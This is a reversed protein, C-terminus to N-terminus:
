CAALEQIKPRTPRGSQRILSLLAQAFAPAVVGTEFRELVDRRAAAAISQRLPADEILREIAASWSAEDDGVLLGTRGDVIMQSYPPTDSYVGAAGAISYELYKNPCKSMSTRSSDLPAVLIDPALTGVAAAYDDYGVYPLVVAEAGFLQRQRRSIVVFLMAKVPPGRRRTSAALAAFAGDNYRLSGIYGAVLGGTQRRWQILGEIKSKL